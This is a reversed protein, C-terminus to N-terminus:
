AYGEGKIWMKQIVLTLLMGFLIIGLGLLWYDYVFWVSLGLASIIGPIVDRPSQCVTVIRNKWMYKSYYSWSEKKITPWDKNWYSVWYFNDHTMTLIVFVFMLVWIFIFPIM